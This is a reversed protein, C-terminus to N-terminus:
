SVVVNCVCRPPDKSWAGEVCELSPFSVQYGNYCYFFANRPHMRSVVVFGNHIASPADCNPEVKKRITPQAEPGVSRRHVDQGHYYRRSEFSCPTRARLSIGTGMFFHAKRTTTQAQSVDSICGWFVMSFHIDQSSQRFGGQKPKFLM